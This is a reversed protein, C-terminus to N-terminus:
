LPCVGIITDCIVTEDATRLALIQATCVQWLHLGALCYVWNLVTFLNMFWDFCALIHVMTLTFFYDSQSFGAAGGLSLVIPLQVKPRAFGSAPKCLMTSDSIWVSTECPTGGIRLTNSVSARGFKLGFVTTQVSDPAACNQPSAASIVPTDYIFIRSITSYHYKCLNFFILKWEQMCM